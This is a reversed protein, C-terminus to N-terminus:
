RDCEQYAALIIGGWFVGYMYVKIRNVSQTPTRLGHTHFHGASGLLVASRVVEM